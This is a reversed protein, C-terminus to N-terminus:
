QTSNDIYFGSVRLGDPSALQCRPLSYMWECRTGPEGTDNRYVLWLRARSEPVKDTSEACVGIFGVSM